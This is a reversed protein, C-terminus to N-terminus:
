SVDQRERTDRLRLNGRITDVDRPKRVLKVLHEWCPVLPGM